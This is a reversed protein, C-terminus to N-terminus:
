ECPGAWGLLPNCTTIYMYNPFFAVALGAITVPGWMGVSLAGLCVNAVGGGNGGGGGIAMLVPKCFQRRM